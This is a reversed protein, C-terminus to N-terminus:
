TSRCLSKVMHHMRINADSHTRTHAHTGLPHLWREPRVLLQRTAAHCLQHIQLQASSATLPVGHEFWGFVRHQIEATARYPSTYRPKPHPPAGPSPIRVGGPTYQAHAAYLKQLGYLLVTCISHKYPSVTCKVHDHTYRGPCASQLAPQVSEGRLYMYMCYMYQTQIAINYM